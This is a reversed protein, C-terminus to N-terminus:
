ELVEVSDGVRVVGTHEPILNRGFVLSGDVRHHRALTRLPEKGREATRQDVTTVVCRGCPKVARFTVEGVRVRRWGDEARPATNGVVLNPRFRDMPLPGEAAHD